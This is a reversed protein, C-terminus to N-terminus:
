LYRNGSFNPSILAIDIDSDKRASGKAYSGYLYARIIKIQNKQVADIFQNIKNKINQDIVM